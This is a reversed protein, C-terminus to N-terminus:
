AGHGPDRDALGGIGTGDAGNRYRYVAGSTLAYLILFLFYTPFIRFPRRIFFRKLSRGAARDSLLNRTILFGSLVFFIAVANAGLYFKPTALVGDLSWQFLGHSTAVM